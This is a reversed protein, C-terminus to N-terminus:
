ARGTSAVMASARAGFEASFADLRTLGATAEDAFKRQEIRLAEGAARVRMATRDAIADLEAGQDRLAGGIGSAREALTSLAGGIADAGAGLQRAAADARAGLGALEAERAQLLRAITALRAETERASDGLM